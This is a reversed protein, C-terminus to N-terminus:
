LQKYKWIYGYATKQLNKCCAHIASGSKKKDLPKLFLNIVEENNNYEKIFNGKLDYQIIPFVRNVKLIYEKPLFLELDFSDNYKYRWLSGNIRLFSEKLCVGKVDNYNPIQLYNDWVKIFKGLYNYEIILYNHKISVGLKNLSMKDKTEQSLFGERGDIRCCLSPIDLVKYFIKWHTERELLNDVECEEIVEFKHNKSGYKILSNYLRPQRKCNLRNYRKWRDEIDTSQGIYIKNTPSTIKYIGIM